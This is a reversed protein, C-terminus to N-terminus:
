HSISDNKQLSCKIDEPIKTANKWVGFQKLLESEIKLKVLTCISLRMWSDSIAKSIRSKM